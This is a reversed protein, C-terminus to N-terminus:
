SSLKEIDSFLSSGPHQHHVVTGREAWATPPCVFRSSDSSYVACLNLEFLFCFTGSRRMHQIHANSAIRIMNCSSPGLLFLLLLIVTITLQILNGMQVHHVVLSFWMKPCHRPIEPHARGDTSRQCSVTVRVLMLCSELRCADPRHSLPFQFISGTISLFRSNRWVKGSLALCFFATKEDSRDSYV